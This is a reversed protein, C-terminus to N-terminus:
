TIDRGTLEIKPWIPISSRANLGSWPFRGSKSCKVATPCHFGDRHTVRFRHGKMDFTLPDEACFLENPDLGPNAPQQPPHQPQDQAQKQPQHQTQAHYEALKGLLAIHQMSLLQCYILPLAGAQRLTEFQAEPLAKLAVEDICQLREGAATKVTLPWPQILAHEALLACLRETRQRDAAVQELFALIQRV